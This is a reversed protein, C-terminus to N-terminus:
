GETLQYRVPLQITEKRSVIHTLFNQNKIKNVVELAANDLVDHGSSNFISIDTIKGNKEIILNLTVTGQWNRVQAIRPYYFHHNIKKQLNSIIRARSDISQQEKNLIAQKTKQRPRVTKHTKNKAPVHENKHNNNKSLKIKSIVKNAQVSITNQTLTVSVGPSNQAPIFPQSEGQYLALGVAVHIFIAVGLFPYISSKYPMM